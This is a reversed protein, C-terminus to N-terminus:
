FPSWAKSDRECSALGSRHSRRVPERRRSAAVHPYRDEGGPLSETWKPKMAVDPDVQRSSM